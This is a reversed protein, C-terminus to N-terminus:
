RRDGAAAHSFREVRREMEALPVMCLREREEHVRERLEGDECVTRAIQEATRGACDAFSGEAFWEGALPDGEYLPVAGVFLGDFLKETLYGRHVQNEFCLHHTYRAVFALKEPVEHFHIKTEPPCARRLAENAHVPVLEALANAMEIRRSALNGRGLNSIAVSVGFEKESRDGALRQMEADQRYRWWRHYFHPVWLAREHEIRPIGYFWRARTSGAVFWEGDHRLDSLCEGSFLVDCPEAAGGMVSGVRLDYRDLTAFLFNERDFGRWFGTFQAKERGREPWPRDFSPSRHRGDGLGTSQAGMHQVLSHRTTYLHQEQVARRDILLDYPAQAEEGGQQWILARVPELEAAPFLMAQTGYFGGAVYSSYCRGRRLSPEEHDRASYATLLFHSLGDAQMEELCELLMALWGERFAVDDECVLVARAGPAALGLARWYAHCARRHVGWGEVRANEEASRAVWRVRAAGALSAVCALDPADVAVAIERLRRALPDGLRASDLTAPLYAPERPCTLFVLALDEPKWPSGSGASSPQM